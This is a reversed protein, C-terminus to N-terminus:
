HLMSLFEPSQLSIGFQMNLALQEDQFHHAGSYIRM